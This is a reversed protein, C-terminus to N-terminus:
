SQAAGTVLEEPLQTSHLIALHQTPRTLAVYLLRLGAAHDDREAAIASPEVVLVSDFELGKAGTASVVTVPRGLGHRGAEGLWDHGHGASMIEAVLRAPVVVGVTPFRKFLDSALRVCHRALDAVPVNHIEPTYAGRRVARTPQVEPAATPLLRSALDLVQSTSRYGRPLEVVKLKAEPLWGVVEEWSKKAWPGVAQALDGLLTMDGAPCRRALMRLEMPSLDQAEDVIAYGYTRSVGDIRAKAEDVLPGDGPRWDKVKRRLLLSQEDPSLLGEAAVQLQRPRTLLEGVVTVPSVSPWCADLMAKLGDSNRLKSGLETGDKPPGALDVYRDYLAKVLLDRLLSRGAAYPLPRSIATALLGSVTQAPVALRRLGLNVEMDGPPEARRLELARGLLQAMRADGKLREASVGQAGGLPATLQVEPVLDALTTQVVAHEGLSPLVQGIYRLFTRNPGVVLINARAMPGDDYLLFAARHLGVATKGTGPGGQVALIGEAKARIVADQEPQVTAVIDLMEGTRARELEALLAEGGRMDRAGDVVEGPAADARGFTDDGVSLLREGEVVFQRRRALGMPDDWSARYFPVAVPARWDVVVPDSSEDEVHRRGIYWTDGADSDTRGFCLARPNHALARVRRALAWELDPDAGGMESLLREARERMRTLHRYASNIVEQECALDPERAGAQRSSIEGFSQPM